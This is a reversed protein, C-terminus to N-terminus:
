IFKQILHSLNGYFLYRGRKKYAGEKELIGGAGVQGRRKLCVNEAGM